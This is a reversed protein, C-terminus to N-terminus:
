RSGEVAPRSTVIGAEVLAARLRPVDTFRHTVIGLDAAATLNRPTDDIFFVEHARLGLAGLVHHFAAHDPKAYGIEASNFVTGFGPPFDLARLEARVTDTGNTLVATTLGLARIETALPVVEDDIHSPTTGWARAAVHNQVHEGIRRVWEARTIRGTTVETLHPESFAFAAISGAALCHSAEIKGVAREDFHRVVGDLDFLVVKIM